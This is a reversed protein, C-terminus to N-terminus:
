LSVEDFSVLLTKSWVDIWLELGIKQVLQISNLIIIRNSFSLSGFKGDYPIRVTNLWTGCTFQYFDECPDVSQDISDLLYGALILNREKKKRMFIRASRSQHLISEFM